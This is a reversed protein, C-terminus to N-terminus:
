HYRGDAEVVSGTWVGDRDPEGPGGPSLATPMEQWGVLDTSQLHRWSTRLRDPLGAADPPTVLCFLHYSGDSYFPIVDGVAGGDAFRRFPRPRTARGDSM